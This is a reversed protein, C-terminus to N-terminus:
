NLDPHPMPPTLKLSLEWPKAAEGHGSAKLKEIMAVTPGVRLVMPLEALSTQWQSMQDMVDPPATARWLNAVALKAILPRENQNALKELIATAKARDASPLLWSAAVLQVAPSGSTLRERAADLDSVSIRDSRRAGSRWAIPLMGVTIPPLPRRDLQAVLELAVAGRGSRLAAQAALMSLWQQRWIPPRESLVDLLPRLSDAYKGQTFQETAAKENESRSGVQFWLVRHSPILSEAEDGAMFVRLHKDNLDVITGLKVKISKPFWDSENQTPPTPELWIRDLEKSDSQAWAPAALALCCLVGTLLRLM